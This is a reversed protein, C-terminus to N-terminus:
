STYMTSLGRFTEGRYAINKGIRLLKGGRFNAAICYYQVHTDVYHVHMAVQCPFSFILVAAYTCLSWWYFVCQIFSVRCHLM